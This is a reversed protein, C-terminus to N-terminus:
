KATPLDFRAVVAIHDSYLSTECSLKYPGHAYEASTLYRQLGDSILVHDITSLEDDTVICDENRDWRGLPRWAALWRPSCLAFVCVFM